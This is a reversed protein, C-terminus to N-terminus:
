KLMAILSKLHPVCYTIAYWIDFCPNGNRVRKKSIREPRIMEVVSSDADSVFSFRLDTEFKYHLHVNNGFSGYM